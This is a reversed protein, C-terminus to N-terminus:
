LPLLFLCFNKMSTFYFIFFLLKANSIAAIVTNLATPHPDLSAAASVVVASGAPSSVVSADSSAAASVGCRICIAEISSFRYLNDYQQALRRLQYQM